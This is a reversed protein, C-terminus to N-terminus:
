ARDEEDEALPEKSASLGQPVPLLCSAGEGEDREVKGIKEAKGRKRDRHRYRQRLDPCVDPKGPRASARGEWFVGSEQSLAHRPVGACRAKRETM